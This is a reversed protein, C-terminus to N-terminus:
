EKNDGNDDQDAFLDKLKAFAPNIQNKKGEEFSQESVVEWNSGKPYLDEKEEEDTLITEPINLLINDEIATQLDIQNDEVKVIPDMEEAAEAKTPQDLSYNETFTFDQHYEVPKLSRSSPVVLDATVHFNGTVYPEQYFLDGSVHINKAKFLLQSARELFEERMTVDEEIHTLPSADNKISLFNITLM